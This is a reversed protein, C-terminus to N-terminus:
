GRGSGETGNCTNTAQCKIFEMSEPKFREFIGKVMGHIDVKLNTSIYSIDSSDTVEVKWHNTKFISIEEYKEDEAIYPLPPTGSCSQMFNRSAINKGKAQAIVFSLLLVFIKM